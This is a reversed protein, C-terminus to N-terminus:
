ATKAGEEGFRRVFWEDVRKMNFRYRTYVKRHPPPDDSNLWNYVTSESVGAVQQSM